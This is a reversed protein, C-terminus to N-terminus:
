IKIKDFIDFSTRFEVFKHDKKTLMLFNTKSAFNDNRSSNYMTITQVMSKWLKWQTQYIQSSGKLRIVLAKILAGHGTGSTLLFQKSKWLVQTWGHSKTTNTNSVKYNETYHKTSWQKDKKRKAM